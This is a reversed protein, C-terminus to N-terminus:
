RVKVLTDFAKCVRGVRKLGFYDLQSLIMLLLEAPLQLLRSPEAPPSSTPTTTM